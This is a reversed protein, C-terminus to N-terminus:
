IQRLWGSPHTANKELEPPFNETESRGSKEEGQTAAQRTSDEGTKRLVRRKM